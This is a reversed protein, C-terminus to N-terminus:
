FTLTRGAQESACRSLVSLFNEATRTDPWQGPGAYRFHFGGSRAALWIEHLPPQLNIILQSRDPLTLTLVHGNRSSDIDIVDEDLWADTRREIASLLAMGEAHYQADTWGSPTHTETM